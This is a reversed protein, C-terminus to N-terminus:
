AFSLPIEHESAVLVFAYSSFLLYPWLIEWVGKFRSRRRM